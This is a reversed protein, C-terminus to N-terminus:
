RGFAALFRDRFADMRWVPANRSPLMGPEWGWGSISDLVGRDRAVVTIPVDHDAHDGSVITAAENVNSVNITVAKTRTLSGDSAVITRSTRERSANIPVASAAALCAPTRRDRLRASTHSTDMTM